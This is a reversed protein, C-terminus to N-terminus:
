GFGMNNGSGSRRGGDGTTQANLGLPAASNEIRLGLRWEFTFACITIIVGVRLVKSHGRRVVVDCELTDSLTQDTM